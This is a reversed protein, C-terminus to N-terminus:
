EEDKEILQVYNGGDKIEDIEHWEQTVLDADQNEIAQLAKIAEYVKM